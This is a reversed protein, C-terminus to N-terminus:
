NNVWAQVLGFAEPDQLVALMGNGFDEAIAEVADPNNEFEDGLIERAHELSYEEILKVVSDSIM